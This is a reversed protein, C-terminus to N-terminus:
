AAQGSHRAYWLTPPEGRGKPLSMAFEVAEERTERSALLEWRKTRPRWKMVLWM